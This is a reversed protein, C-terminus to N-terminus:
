CLYNNKQFIKVNGLTKNGSNSYFLTRILNLTKKRKPPFEKGGVTQIIKGIINITFLSSKEFIKKLDDLNVRVAGTEDIM